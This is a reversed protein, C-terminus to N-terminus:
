CFRYYECRPMEIRPLFNPKGKHFQREGAMLKAGRKTVTDASFNVERYCHEFQIFPIKSQARRWRSKLFWPLKSAGFEQLVTKSHSRIVIKTLGWEMALETARLAAYNEAIYNTAMGLVGYLTGIVQCFEDRIVVEFGAAGPNGFSSGDCCFLVYGNTPATWFCAKICQFKTKRHGLNFFNIIQDDYVQSWKHGKIRLGGEQMYKIVKRQINQANPKVEEFYKKNKQFWIEKLIVCSTTIWIEQILPSQKKACKWVDEFSEPAKSMFITLIWKWIEVSVVCKWLLHDMSDQDNECVCCRSALEYGKSVMIADDIYIGQVLKWINSAISPHLFNSWIYRSWHKKPEKHRLKNTTTSM